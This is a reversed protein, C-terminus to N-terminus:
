ESEGDGCGPPSAVLRWPLQTWHMLNPNGGSGPGRRIEPQKTQQSISIHHEFQDKFNNNKEQFHQRHWCANLLILSLLLSSAWFSKYIHINNSTVNNCSLIVNITNWSVSLMITFCIYHWFSATVKPKTVLTLTDTYEWPQYQAM